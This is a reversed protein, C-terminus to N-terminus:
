ILSDPIDHQPTGAQLYPVYGDVQLTMKKGSKLIFFPDSGAPWVFTIGDHMCRRGISLLAPTDQLVHATVKVDMEPILAEIQLNARTQGNATQVYLVHKSEKVREPMMCSVGRGVMDYASGTDAIWRGVPLPAAGKRAIAAAPLDLGSNTTSSCSSDTEGAEPTADDVVENEHGPRDSIHWWSDRNYWIDDKLYGPM